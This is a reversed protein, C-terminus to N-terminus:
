AGGNRAPQNAMAIAETKHNGVRRPRVDRSVNEDRRAADAVGQMAIADQDSVHSHAGVAASFAPDLTHQVPRLSRYDSLEAEAAPIVVDDRKVIADWV